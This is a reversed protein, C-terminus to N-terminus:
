GVAQSIHPRRRHLTPPSKPQNRKRPVPINERDKEGLSGGGGVAVTWLSSQFTLQQLRAWFNRRGQSFCHKSLLSQRDRDPRSGRPAVATHLIFQCSAPYSPRGETRLLRHPPTLREFSLNLNQLTRATEPTSQARTTTSKSCPSRLFFHKSLAWPETETCVSFCTHM